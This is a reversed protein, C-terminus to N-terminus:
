KSVLLAFNIEWIMSCQISINMSQKQSSWNNIKKPKVKQTSFFIRGRELIIRLANDVSAEHPPALYFTPTLLIVFQQHVFQFSSSDV